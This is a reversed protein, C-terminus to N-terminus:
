FAPPDRRKIWLDLREAGVPHSAVLEYGYPPSAGFGRYTVLRAGVRASALRRRVGLVGDVFRAPGLPVTRDITYAPAGCLHEGFPDFMYFADFRSWDLELADGEIFSGNAIALQVALGRAVEVLRHRHEIGVFSSGPIESAAVLCFKGPGAGIDLVRMGPRPALLHAARRAVAVPTFHISSIRQLWSPLRRDFTADDDVVAPLPPKLRGPMTM